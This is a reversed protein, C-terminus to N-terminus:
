RLDDTRRKGSRGEILWNNDPRSHSLNRHIKLMACRMTGLCNMFPVTLNKNWQM